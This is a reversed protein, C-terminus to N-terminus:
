EHPPTGRAPAPAASRNALLAAVLAREFVPLLSRWPLAGVWAVARGRVRPASAM